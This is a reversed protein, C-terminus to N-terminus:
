QGAAFKMVWEVTLGRARILSMATTDDDKTLAKSLDRETTDPEDWVSHAFIQRAFRRMWIFQEEGLPRYLIRNTEEQGKLYLQFHAFLVDRLIRTWARIAGASFIRETRQHLAGGQEPNWRDALGEEAIISMLRVLNREETDRFDEDSQFEVSSPIPSLFDRYLTKQVRSITLPPSRSRTTESVYFRLANEPDNLIRWHIAKAVEGRATGSAMKKTNVLFDVFSQESKRGDLAAYENWDEGFIDAYKKMLEHTYFPMQRYSQHADLNTEKLQKANPKIYVKCEVASRGSWIQAAAKHQGDFLLLNGQEDFRCISPALQTNRQFHRYLDWMSRVRLGRPQLDKDNRLFRVPILAYFYHWYTIQCQYLSVSIPNGEFFLTVQASTGDVEYPLKHGFSGIKTKLVDDLYKAEGDNFFANLTLYDRYESLTM